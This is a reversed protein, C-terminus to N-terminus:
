KMKILLDGPNMRVTGDKYEVWLSRDDSENDNIIRYESYGTAEDEIQEISDVKSSVDNEVLYMAIQKLVILKHIEESSAETLHIQKIKENIANIIDLM